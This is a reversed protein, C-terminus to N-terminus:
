TNRFPLPKVSLRYENPSLGFYAKFASVFSAYYTYGVMQAIIKMTLETTKMLEIAKYLKKKRLWYYVSEGQEKKFKECLTNRNTGISRAVQDLTFKKNLNKQLFDIAKQSISKSQNKKLSHPHPKLTPSLYKKFSTPHIDVPTAM